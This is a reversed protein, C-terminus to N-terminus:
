KQQKRDKTGDAGLMERDHTAQQKLFPECDPSSSFVFTTPFVGGSFGYSQPQFPRELDIEGEFSGASTGYSGQLRAFFRGGRPEVRGSLGGEGAIFIDSSLRIAASVIRTPATTGSPLHYTHTFFHLYVPEARQSDGIPANLFRLEYDYFPSMVQGTWIGLKKSEPSAKVNYNARMRVKHWINQGGDSALKELAEGQVNWPQDRGFSVPYLLHERPAVTDFGPGNLAWGMKGNRITGLKNGEVDAVELEINYAGWSNWQQFVRQTQSSVNSILVYIESRESGVLWRRAQGNRLVIEIRLESEQAIGASVAGMLALLSVFYPTKMIALFWCNRGEARRCARGRLCDIRKTTSLCPRNQRPLPLDLIKVRSM